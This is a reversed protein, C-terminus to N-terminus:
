TAREKLKEVGEEIRDEVEEKKEEAAEKVGAAKALLEALEKDKAGLELKLDDIAKAKSEKEVETKALAKETTRTKAQEQEGNGNQVEPYNAEMDLRADEYMKELRDREKVPDPREGEAWQIYDIEAFTREANEIAHVVERYKDRSRRFRVPMGQGTLWALIGALVTNVAGLATLAETQAPNEGAALATLTAAIIVQILFLGSIIYRSIGYMVRNKMDQSITRDYLGRNRFRAAAAKGPLFIDKMVGAPKRQRGPPQPGGGYQLFHIGVLTQFVELESVGHEKAYDSVPAHRHIPTRSPYLKEERAKRREERRVRQEELEEQRKILEEEKLGKEPDATGASSKSSGSRFPWM